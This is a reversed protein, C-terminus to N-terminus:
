GGASVDVRQVNLVILASLSAVWLGSHPEPEVIRGDDVWKFSRGIFRLDRVSRMARIISAANAEVLVNASTTSAGIAALPPSAQRM